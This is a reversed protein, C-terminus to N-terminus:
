LHELRMAVRGNFNRAITTTLEGPVHSITDDDIKVVPLVGRSTSSVFAEDLLRLDEAKVPQRVLPIGLESISELILSRTIGPLVGEEATFVTGNKVGFFNSSLGELADGDDSIMLVENVRGGIVKREEESETIFANNKAKPNDRHITRSVLFVGDEYDQKSPPALPAASLWIEGPRDHVGITIRFITQASPVARALDGLLRRLESRQLAVHHGLLETTEELRDFHGDLELFSSKGYTRLSTYAGEPLMKTAEQMSETLVPDGALWRGSARSVKWSSCSRTITSSSMGVVVRSRRPLRILTQFATTM